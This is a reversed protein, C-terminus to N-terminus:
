GHFHSGNRTTGPTQSPTKRRIQRWVPFSGPRDSVVRWFVNIFSTQPAVSRRHAAAGGIHGRGYHGHRRPRFNSNRGPRNAGERRGRRSALRQLPDVGARSVLGAAM